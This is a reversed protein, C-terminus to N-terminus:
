VNPCDVKFDKPRKPRVTIQPVQIGGLIDQVSISMKSIDLQVVNFTYDGESEQFKAPLTAIKAIIVPVHTATTTLYENLYNLIKTAFNKIATVLGPPDAVNTLATIPSIMDNAFAVLKQAALKQQAMMYEAYELIKRNLYNEVYVDIMAQNRTHEGNVIQTELQTILADIEIQRERTAKEREKQLADIQAYLSKETADWNRVITKWQTKCLEYAEDKESEEMPVVPDPHQKTENEIEQKIKDAYNSIKRVIGRKIKKTTAVFDDIGEILADFMQPKCTGHIGM